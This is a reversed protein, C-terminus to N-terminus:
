KNRNVDQKWGVNRGEGTGSYGKDVLYVKGSNDDTCVMWGSNQGYSCMLGFPDTLNIPNNFVYNYARLATLRGDM